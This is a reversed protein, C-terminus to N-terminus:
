RAGDGPFGGARDPGAAPPRPAVLVRLDGIRHPTWDRAYGPTAAGPLTVAAVPVRRATRGVEAPTTNENHGTTNGSSCGTYYGLPIAEHGTLLCPPRVGLRHLADATRAWDRRDRTTRDVTRDLVAYQVALHGTLGLAILTAAVPRWRGAPTRVLHRLADAVPIALLAYAPQLFRPAAYGIMFLYPLAATAACALPVLTRATRGARVAVALGLAALPPLAFWWLTVAPHPFAGTCPRCLARGGLSRLQDDVAIQWGLGGQIRSAEHLREGLGGYWAYAEVVWEAGGAALGGVLALLLRGHRRWLAVAFLPLTAYVADAPRMWAMLAAGAVVGWLASRASPEARARLFSGACILAGVAVWYNPMAQPGYFLTVWLTAFLAGATALVGAPFLGRWARLALYLGLGSLLALYVRLLETSSSWSAVPAALLSPGRSRPASFFAAPTHATVQSVYVIEDWGLGMGPRVLLLQLATFAAAVAAAPRADLARGGAATVTGGRWRGAPVTRTGDAM